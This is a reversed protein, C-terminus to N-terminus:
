ARVVLRQRTHAPQPPVRLGSIPYINQEQKNGKGLSNVSALAPEVKQAFNDRIPKGVLKDVESLLFLFVIYASLM